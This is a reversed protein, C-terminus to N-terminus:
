PKPKQAPCEESFALDTGKGPGGSSFDISNGKIEVKLGKIVIGTENIEISGGPASLLIKEKAATFHQKSRHVIKEGSALDVTEGVKTRMETGVQVVYAQGVNVTKAVGVQEHRAVGVTDSKFSGVVTNMMGPLSFLQNVSSGLGTGSAQL